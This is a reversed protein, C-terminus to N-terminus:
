DASLNFQRIIKGLVEVESKVHAAFEEPSSGIPVYGLDSLAWRM